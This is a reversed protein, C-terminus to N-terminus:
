NAMNCGKYFQQWLVNQWFTVRRLLNLSHNWFNRRYFRFLSFEMANVLTFKAFKSMKILRKILCLIHFIMNQQSNAKDRPTRSAMLYLVYSLLRFHFSSFLFFKVWYKTAIESRQFLTRGITRNVDAAQGLIKSKSFGANKPCFFSTKVVALM